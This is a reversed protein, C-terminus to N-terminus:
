YNTAVHTPTLNSPCGSIPWYIPCQMAFGRSQPMFDLEHRDKNPKNEKGSRGPDYTGPTVLASPLRSNSMQRSLAPDLFSQQPPPYFYAELFKLMNMARSRSYDCFGRFIVM